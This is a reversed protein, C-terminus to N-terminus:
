TLFHKFICLLANYLSFLILEILPISICINYIYIYININYLSSYIYYFLAGFYLFIVFNFPSVPLEAIVIPSKLISTEITSSVSLIYILFYLM